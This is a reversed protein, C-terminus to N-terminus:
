TARFTPVAGPRDLRIRSLRGCGLVREPLEAESEAQLLFALDVVMRGASGFIPGFIRRAAATSGCDLDVRAAARAADVHFALEIGAPGPVVPRSGIATRVLWPGEQVRPIMKFRARRWADDAALFADFLAPGRPEAVSAHLGFYFVVHLTDHECPVILSVVLTGRLPISTRASLTQAPSGARESADPVPLRARFVEVALLQSSHASPRKRRDFVWSPGRVNFSSAHLASWCHSREGDGPRLELESFVVRGAPGTSSAATILAPAGGERPPPLEVAHAAVRRGAECADEESGSGDPPGYAEVAGSDERHAIIPVNEDAPGLVARSPGRRWWRCILVLLLLATGSILMDAWSTLPAMPLVRGALPSSASAHSRAADLARLARDRVRRAQELLTPVSSAPM